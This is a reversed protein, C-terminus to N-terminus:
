TELGHQGAWEWQLGGRGETAAAGQWRSPLLCEVLFCVLFSTVLM